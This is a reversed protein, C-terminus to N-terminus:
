AIEASASREFSRRLEPACHFGEAEIRDLAAEYAAVIAAQEAESHGERWRERHAAGASM